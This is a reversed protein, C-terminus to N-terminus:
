KGIRAIREFLGAQRKNLEAQQAEWDGELMPCPQTKSVKCDNECGDPLMFDPEQPIGCQPCIIVAPKESM